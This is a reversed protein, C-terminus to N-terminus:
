RRLLRRQQDNIPVRSLAFREGLFTARRTGGGSASLFALDPEHPKMKRIEPMNCKVSGPTNNLQQNINIKPPGSKEPAAVRSCLWQCELIPPLLPM